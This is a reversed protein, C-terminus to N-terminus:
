EHSSQTRDQQLNYNTWANEQSKTDVTTLNKNWAVFM